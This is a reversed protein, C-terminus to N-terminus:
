NQSTLMQSLLIQHLKKCRQKFLLNLLENDAKFVLEIYESSNKNHSIANELDTVAYKLKKYALDIKKNLNM